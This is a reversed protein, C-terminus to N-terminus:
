SAAPWAAPRMSTPAGTWPLAMAQEPAIFAPTGHVANESTHAPGHTRPDRARGVIGFDLVKVFDYEEGYRCLFDERAQHRSSGPRVVPGGVALSLGPSPPLTAREAPTPGFRRLLSDADLGDLLEMVYDFAGDAAIGFDFLEVTHALPSRRDGAGRARLTPRM